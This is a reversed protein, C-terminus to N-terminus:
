EGVVRLNSSRKEGFGLRNLVEDTLAAYMETARSQPAFLQVPQHGSPAEELKTARHIITEFVVNNMREKLERYMTGGVKTRSDFLTCVAGLINLKPNTMRTQEIVKMLDDLGELAYPASQIPIILHDAAQMSVSLLMGFNPPTDIITFDYKHEVDRLIRSLQGLLTAGERDFMALKLTGPAIDLGEIETTVIVEELTATRDGENNVLANALGRRTRDKPLFSQTANSQPDADVLLVRYERIALEAALSVASTSKGVGGKQNAIAITIM